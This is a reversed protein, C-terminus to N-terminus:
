AVKICHWWHLNFAAQVVDFEVCKKGKWSSSGFMKFYFQLSTATNQLLVELRLDKKMFQHVFNGDQRKYTMEASVAIAQCVQSFIFDRKTKQGSLSSVSSSSKKKMYFVDLCRCHSMQCALNLLLLKIKLESFFLVSLSFTDWAWCLSSFLFDLGRRLEREETM